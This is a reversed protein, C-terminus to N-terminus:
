EGPTLGSTIGIHSIVPDGSYVYLQHEVGDEVRGPIEQQKGIGLWDWLGYFGGTPTKSPEPLPLPTGEKTVCVAKGDNDWCLNACGQIELDIKSVEAPIVMRSGDCSRVRGSNDVPPVVKEYRDVTVVKTEEEKEKRTLVVAGILAAGGLMMMLGVNQAM